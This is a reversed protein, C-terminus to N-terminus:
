SAKEIQNHTEMLFKQEMSIFLSNTQQILNDLKLKVFTGTELDSLFMFCLILLTPNPSKFDLRPIYILNEPFDLFYKEGKYDLGFFM